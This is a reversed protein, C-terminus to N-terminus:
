EGVKRCCCPMLAAIDPRMLVVGISSAIMEDMANPAMESAIPRQLGSKIM